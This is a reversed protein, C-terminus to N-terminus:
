PPADSAHRGASADPWTNLDPGTTMDGNFANWDDLGTLGGDMFGSMDSNWLQLLSADLEMQDAAMPWPVDPGMQALMDELEAGGGGVGDEGRPTIPVHIAGDVEMDQARTKGADVGSVSEYNAKQGRDWGPTSGTNPSTDESSGQERVRPGQMEMERRANEYGEPWIDGPERQQTAQQILEPHNCWQRLKFLLALFIAPVRCGNPGIISRVFLITKDMYASAKLSSRDIVPALKSHTSTSSLMLKALVFTAFSIRVFTFVPLARANDIPMSLFADLLAHSSRILDVTSSVLAKIPMDESDSPHIVGMQYPAKFDEPSHDVHLALEHLFMRMTYYMIKLSTNFVQEPVNREWDSLQKEFANIMLQTRLDLISAMDGPDEFNFANSIEEAIVILRVWAIFMRDGPAQNPSREMYEVCERTYSTMRMMAPRRLSISVGACIGYCALFTRRCELTATSEENSQERTSMSLDPNGFDESPHVALSNKTDFRSRRERAPRTGIGIDMAMTAAMHIYEYYKLDGFRNPPHYWCASILLAQVIEVSKESNVVSRDAYDQLVEKDLVASLDPHEKNAAAAVVALFLTPKTSRLDDAGVEPPIYVQPYHHYLESKYYDVLQRATEMPLLGRDIVDARRTGAVERNRRAWPVTRGAASGAVPQPIDHHAQRAIAVSANNIQSAYEMEGNFGKEWLQTANGAADTDTDVGKPSETRAGEDQKKLMSRMMRMDRELEAVRTDTRKRQKRKQLPTFVCPRGAKSCKQCIEPNSEDPLCRVKQSRCHACARHSPIDM